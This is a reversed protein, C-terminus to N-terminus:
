VRRLRDIDLKDVNGFRSKFYDEDIKKSKMTEKIEKALDKKSKEVRTKTKKRRTKEEQGMEKYKAKENIKKLREEDTMKKKKKKGHVDVEDLKEEAEDDEDTFKFREEDANEESAKRNTGALSEPDAYLDSRSGM